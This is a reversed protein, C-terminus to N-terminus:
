AISTQTELWISDLYYPTCYTTNVHKFAVISRKVMSQKTFPLWKLTNFLCISPMTKEACLIIKAARKKFNFSKIIVKVLAANGFSVETCENLSSSQMMIYNERAKKLTHVSICLYAWDSQLQKYLNNIHAEYTLGKDLTVGLPKQCSVQKIEQNNGLRVTLDLNRNNKELIKKELHKGTILLSKTKEINIIIRNQTSWESIKKDLNNNVDQVLSPIETWNANASMTTDDAFIDISTCTLNLPLDNVFLM